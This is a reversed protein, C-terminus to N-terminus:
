SHGEVMGNRKRLSVIAIALDDQNGQRHVVHASTTQKFQEAAAGFQSRLSRSFNCCEASM